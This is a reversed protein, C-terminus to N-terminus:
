SHSRAPQVARRVSGGDPLRLLVNVRSLAPARSYEVARITQPRVPRRSRAIRPLARFAHYVARAYCNPGDGCGVVVAWVACKLVTRWVALGLPYYKWITWLENRLKFYMRHEDPLEQRYGPRHRRGGPQREAADAAFLGRGVRGSRLFTVDPLYMIDYGADVLRIALDRGESVGVYEEPFGGVARVAARRLACMGECITWPTSFERRSYRARDHGYWDWWWDESRDADDVMRGHVAALNPSSQFRAVIAEIAGRGLRVGDDLWIVINGRAEALALNLGACEGQHPPLQLIRAEPFAAEVSAWDEAWSGDDSSGDGVVLVELGSDHSRRLDALAAHVNQAHGWNVLALTVGVTSPAPVPPADHLVQM